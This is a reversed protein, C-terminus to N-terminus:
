FRISSLHILKEVRGTRYDGTLGSVVMKGNKYSRLRVGWEAITHDYKRDHWQLEHEGRIELWMSNAERLNETTKGEVVYILSDLLTNHDYESLHRFEAIGKEPNWDVGDWLRTSSVYRRWIWIDALSPIKKMIEKQVREKADSVTEKEPDVTINFGFVENRDGVPFAANQNNFAARWVIEYVKSYDYESLCNLNYAIFENRDESKM